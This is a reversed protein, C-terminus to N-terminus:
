LEKAHMSHIGIHGIGLLVVSILMWVVRGYIGLLFFALIPLTAGALPIGCFSTYMDKCCQESKFYTIWYGEYFLMCVGAAVLWLSNMDWTHPDFDSFLLACATVLVQGIREMMMFLKNEGSADYDKPQHKIWVINPVFLMILFLCGVYSFGIHGM